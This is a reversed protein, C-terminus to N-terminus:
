GLRAGRAELGLLCDLDFRLCRRWFGICGHREIGHHSTESRARQLGELEPGGTEARRNRGEPEPGGTGAAWAAKKAYLEPRM